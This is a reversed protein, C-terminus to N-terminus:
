YQSLDLIKLYKVCYAVIVPSTQCVTKSSTDNKADTHSKRHNSPIYVLTQFENDLIRLIKLRHIPTNHLGNLLQM